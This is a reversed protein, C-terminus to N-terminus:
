VRIWDSDKIATETSSLGASQYGIFRPLGIGAQELLNCVVDDTLSHPVGAVLVDVDM